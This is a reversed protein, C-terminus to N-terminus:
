TKARLALVYVYQLWFPVNILRPSAHFSTELDARASTNTLLRMLKIEINAGTKSQMGPDGVQYVRRCTHCRLARKPRKHEINVGRTESESCSRGFWSNGGIEFSTWDNVENQRNLGVIYV